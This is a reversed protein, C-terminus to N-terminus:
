AGECGAGPCADSPEQHMRLTPSAATKKPVAAHPLNRQMQLQAALDTNGQTAPGACAHECPTDLDRQVRNAHIALGSLQKQGVGVVSHGLKAARRTTTVLLVWM